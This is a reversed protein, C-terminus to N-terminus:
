APRRRSATATPCGAVPVLGHGRRPSVAPDRRPPRPWWAVGARRGVPGLGCSRGGLLPRLASQPWGGHAPDLVRRFGVAQLQGAVPLVQALSGRHTVEGTRSQVILREGVLVCRRPMSSRRGSRPVTRPTLACWRVRRRTPVTSIATTFSPRARAPPSTRTKGSRSIRVRAGGAGAGPSRHRRRLARDQRRDALPAPALPFTSAPWPSKWLIKGDAPDVRASAAPRFLRGSATQRRAPLARALGARGCGARLDVRLDGTKKNLALGATGAPLILLNGRILPTGAYFWHPRSTAKATAPDSTWSRRGYRNATPQRLAPSRATRISCTCRFRRGAAAHLAPRHLGADPEAQPRHICGSARVGRGVAPGFPRARRRTSVSCSTTTGAPASATASRTSATAASSPPPTAGAWMRAAVTGQAPRQDLRPCFAEAGSAAQGARPSAPQGRIPGTVLLFDAALVALLLALRRYCM